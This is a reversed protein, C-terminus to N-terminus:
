AISSHTLLDGDVNDLSQRENVVTIDDGCGHTHWEVKVESSKGNGLDTTM